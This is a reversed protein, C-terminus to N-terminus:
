QLRGYHRELVALVGEPARDRAFDALAADLAASLEPSILSTLTPVRVATEFDGRFGAGRVADRKRAPRSGKIRSFVTQGQESGFIRLLDLAGDRRSARRPLGFADVTFVFSGETGPAPAVGFGDGELYGRREFYGKTWDGMLTMAASGIRLRDAARDWGLTLADDNAADLLRGLQALAERVEPAAPSARGEFFERYFRPGALAVLICEFTLLSLVWPARIGLAIPQIGRRRLTQAAAHLEDLTRPVAVEAQALAALDYSLTNIRHINLPVAYAEGRYSVLDLVESSFSSRWREQEFLFELPEIHDIPSVGSVPMAWRLLDRGGNSQFMDPPSGSAMRAQLHEKAAQTDRIGSWQVSAGPHGRRYMGILAGLAEVEGDNVWWSLLEPGITLEDRRPRSSGPRPGRPASARALRDLFEKRARRLRSAVTGTALALRDAIEPIALGEIEFLVFVARLEPSLDGLIADALTRTQLGDTLQEPSPVPEPERHVFLDHARQRRFTARRVNQAVHAATAYLFACEREVPVGGIKASAVIFTEQAVDDIEGPAIGLRGLYRTVAALHEALLRHIREREPGASTSAAGIAGTKSEHVNM